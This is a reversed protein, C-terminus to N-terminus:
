TKPWLKLSGSKPSGWDGWQVKVDKREADVHLIVKSDPACTNLYISLRKGGHSTVHQPSLSRIRNPLENLQPLTLPTFKTLLIDVEKLLGKLESISLSKAKVVAPSDENCNGIESFCSYFLFIPVLLLLYIIVRM